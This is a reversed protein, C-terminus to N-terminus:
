DWKLLDLLQTLNGIEIEPEPDPGRRVRGDRNLWVAKLGAANAGAVDTSLSDGVHWVCGPSVSLRELAVGFIAANPKALAVEGSIVIVEFFHEIDLVRLKNRQTDSAGNTILALPMEEKALHDLVDPVDPFLRYGQWEAQEYTRVAREVVSDDTCGCAHLTRSWAERAISAGDMDGLTWREEVETWYSNWIRANAELLQNEDLDCDGSAIERCTHAVACNIFSNDLLTSDLDFFLALPRTM